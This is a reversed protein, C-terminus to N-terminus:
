WGGDELVRTVAPAEPNKVKIRHKSWKVAEQDISCSM